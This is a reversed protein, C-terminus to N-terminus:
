VEQETKLCPLFEVEGVESAAIAKSFLTFGKLLARVFNTSPLPKLWTQRNPTPGWTAM